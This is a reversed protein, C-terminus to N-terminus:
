FLFPAPLCKLKDALFVFAFLGAKHFDTYELMLIVAKNFIQVASQINRPDATNIESGGILWETVRTRLVSQVGALVVLVLLRKQRDHVSNQIIIGVFHDWGEAKAPLGPEFWRPQIPIFNRMKERQAPIWGIWFNPPYISNELNVTKRDWM